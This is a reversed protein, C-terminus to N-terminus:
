GKTLKTLNHRLVLTAVNDIHRSRSQIMKDTLKLKFFLRDNLSIFWIDSDPDIYTNSLKM